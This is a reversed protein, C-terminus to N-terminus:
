GELESGGHGLREGTSCSDGDGNSCMVWGFWAVGGGEMATTINGKAEKEELLGQSSCGHGSGVARVVGTLRVARAVARDVTSQHV